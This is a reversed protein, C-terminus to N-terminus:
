INLQNALLYLFFIITFYNNFICYIYNIYYIEIKFVKNLKSINFIKNM